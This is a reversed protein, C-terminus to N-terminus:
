RDLHTKFRGRADRVSSDGREDKWEYYRGYWDSVKETAPASGTTASRRAIKFDSATLNEDSMVRACPAHDVAIQPM